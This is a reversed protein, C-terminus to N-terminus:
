EEDGDDLSFNFDEDYIKKEEETMEMKPMVPEPEKEKKNADLLDKIWDQEEQEDITESSIFETLEEETMLLMSKVREWEQSTAEDDNESLKEFKDEYYTRVVHEPDIEEIVTLLATHYTKSYWKCLGKYFFDATHNEVEELVLIQLQRLFNNNVQM